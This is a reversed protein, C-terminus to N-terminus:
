STSDLAAHLRAHRCSAVQCALVDQSSGTHAVTLRSLKETHLTKGNENQGRPQMGWKQHSLDSPLPGRGGLGPYREM